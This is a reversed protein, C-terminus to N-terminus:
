NKRVQEHTTIDELRINYKRIIPKLYEVASQVQENTLPTNPGPAQFEIGHM